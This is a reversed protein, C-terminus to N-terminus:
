PRGGGEGFNATEGIRAVMADVDNVDDFAPGLRKCLELIQAPRLAAQELVAGDRMVARPPGDAVMRGETLVLMRSACDHVIEMDHSVMLVTTGETQNLTRVADMIQMCERYDLGTTPEDLVLLKPKRTLLSALAVRQREGRSLLMPNRDGNLGFTKLTEDVRRACAKADLGLADLGFGLEERVTHCFIQRDPNQFLFGIEKALDSTRMQGLDKNQFFVKGSTPRYLGNCLKSLSSKGAGNSGTLAVFEGAAIRFSLEQLIMRGELRLSVNEMRIM